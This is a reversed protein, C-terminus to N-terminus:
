RVSFCIRNLGFPVAHWTAAAAPQGCGNAEGGDPGLQGLATVPVVLGAVSNRTALGSWAVRAASPSSCRVMVAVPRHPMATTVVTDSRPGIPGAMSVTVSAPSSRASKGPRRRDVSAAVTGRQVHEFGHGGHETGRPM